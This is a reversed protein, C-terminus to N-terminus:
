LGAVIDPDAHRIPALQNQGALRPPLSRQLAKSAEAPPKGGAESEIPVLRIGPLKKSVFTKIVDGRAVDLFSILGLRPKGLTVRDAHLHQILDCVRKAVSNVSLPLRILTLTIWQHNM